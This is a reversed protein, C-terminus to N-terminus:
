APDLAAALSVAGLLRRGLTRGAAFPGDEADGAFDEEEREALPAPLPVGCRELGATPPPPVPVPEDLPDEGCCAVRPADRSSGLFGRPNPIPSAGGGAAAASAA